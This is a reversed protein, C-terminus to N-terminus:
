QQTPMIIPSIATSNTEQTQAVPMSPQEASFPLVPLLEQHTDIEFDFYESKFEVPGMAGFQILAARLNKAEQHLLGLGYRSEYNTPAELKSLSLLATANENHGAGIAAVSALFMTQADTQKADDILSNYIIYAKEFERLYISTLALAQMIGVSSEQVSLVKDNLIQEVRRLAGINYGVRVYLERALTPGYFVPDLSANSEKYFINVSQAMEKPNKEFNDALLWLLSSVIDNQNLNLLREAAEKMRAQNKNQVAVVYDLAYDISRPKQATHIWELPPQPVNNTFGLLSKLFVEEDPTLPAAELDEGFGNNLRTRNRYTLDSTIMAFIGALIDRTDLHYSRLFHKYANDFDGLQAYSLGLNYHLISHNPFQQIAGKLLRNAEQSHNKLVAKLAQAIDLNVRSITSGATLETKAEELNNLEINIGGDRIFELAQKADFVRYPAYYFLIKYANVKYESFDKWFTRQSEHVDFLSEKLRVRIPFITANKNDDDKNLNNLVSAAIAMRGEKLATLEYAIKPAVSENDIQEMYSLLHQRAAVYDGTRAYLMGLDFFDKAEASRSLYELANQTDGYYLFLKALLQDKEKRYYPTQDHILPSIAEFYNGKYYQVLAFIFPYLPLGAAETLYAEALNVYYNYLPENRMLFAIMAANIASMARDEGADIAKQFSEIAAQYNNDNFQAVGLNFNSLSESYRSITSFLDLAENKQGQEYLINAKKIMMEITSADLIPPASPAQIQPRTPIAPLTLEQDFFSSVIQYILLLILLFAILAAVIYIGLRAPRPLSDLINGLQNLGKTGQGLAIFLRRMKDMLTYKKLSQEMAEKTTEQILEKTEKKDATHTDENVEDDLRITNDAM